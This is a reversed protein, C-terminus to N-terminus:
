SRGASPDVEDGINTCALDGTHDLRDCIVFDGLRKCERGHFFGYEMRMPDVVLAVQWSQEYCSHNSKDTGSMFIGHGPHTHFWGVNLLKSAGHIREFDSEMRSLEEPSVKVSVRTSEAYNAAVTTAQIVTRLRGSPTRMPKGLLRGFIETNGNETAAQLITDLVTRPCHVLFDAAKEDLEAGIEEPAPIVLCGLQITM